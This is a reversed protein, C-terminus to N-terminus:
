SNLTKKSRHRAVRERNRRKRPSDDVIKRGAKGKSNIGGRRRATIISKAEEAAAVVLARDLTIVPSPALFKDFGEVTEVFKNLNNLKKM